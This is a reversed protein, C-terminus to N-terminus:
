CSHAAAAAPSLGLLDQPDVNCASAAPTRATVKAIPAPSSDPQRATAWPREGDTIIQNPCTQPCTVHEDAPAQPWM